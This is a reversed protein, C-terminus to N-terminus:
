KYNSFPESVLRIAPVANTQTPFLLSMVSSVFDNSNKPKVLEEEMKMKEEIISYNCSETCPNCPGNTYNLESFIHPAMENKVSMNKYKLQGNKCNQKKFAAKVDVMHDNKMHNKIKNTNLEPYLDTYNTFGETSDDEKKKEPGDELNDDKEKKKKKEKKEKKEKGLEVNEEKEDGDEFNDVNIENLIENKANESETTAQDAKAEEAKAQYKASEADAKATAAEAKAKDAEAKAKDAEAKAKVLEAKAKESKVLKTQQEQNLNSVNSENESNSELGETFGELHVMKIKDNEDSFQNVFDTQYYLIVLLCALLGYLIDTKIYFFILSVAAFRGLISHSFDIMERSHVVLLFVLIIPLLKVIIQKM